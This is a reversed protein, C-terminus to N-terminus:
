YSVAASWAAGAAASTLPAREHDLRREFEPAGGVHFGPLLEGRYMAVADAWQGYSIAAEFELADCEILAPDVGAGSRPLDRPFAMNAGPPYRDDGPFTATPSGDVITLYSLMEDALWSPRPAEWIADGRGGVCGPQPRM